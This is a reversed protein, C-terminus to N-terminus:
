EDGALIGFLERYHRDLEEWDKRSRIDSIFSRIMKRRQGEEIDSLRNLCHRILDRRGRKYFDEYKIEWNFANNIANVVDKTSPYLNRNQLIEAFRHSFGNIPRFGKASSSKSTEAKQVNNLEKKSNPTLGHELSSRISYLRRLELSGDLAKLFVKNARPDQFLTRLELLEKESFRSLLSIFKDVIHKDKM